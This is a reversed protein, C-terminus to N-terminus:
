RPCERDGPRMPPKKGRRSPAQFGYRAVCYCVEPRPSWPRMGRQSQRIWCLGRAINRRGFRLPAFICSCRLIPFKSGSVLESRVQERWRLTARVETCVDGRAKGLPSCRWVAIGDPTSPSFPAPLFPAHALPNSLREVLRAHVIPTNQALESVLVSIGISGGLNRMLSRIATGQTLIHAAPDVAGHHQAASGVRIMDWASTHTLFSGVVCDYSGGLLDQYLTSLGDTM